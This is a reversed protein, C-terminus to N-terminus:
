VFVDLPNQTAVGFDNLIGLQRVQVIDILQQRAILVKADDKVLVAWVSPVPGRKKFVVTKVLM